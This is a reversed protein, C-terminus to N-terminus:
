IGLSDCIVQSLFPRLSLMSEKVEPQQLFLIMEKYAAVRATEPHHGLTNILSLLKYRCQPVIADGETKLAADTFKPLVKWAVAYEESSIGDFGSHWFKWDMYKRFAWLAARVGFGNSFLSSLYGHLYGNITELDRVTKQYDQYYVSQEDKSDLAQIFADTNFPELRPEISPQPGDFKFFRSWVELMTEVEAQELGGIGMENLMKLIATAERVIQPTKPAAPQTTPLTPTTNLSIMRVNYLM